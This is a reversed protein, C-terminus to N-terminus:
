NMEYAKKEERHAMYYAHYYEGREGKYEKKTEKAMGTRKLKRKLCIEERHEAYYRKFYALRYERYEEPTMKPEKEGKQPKPKQKYEVPKKGEQVKKEYADRRLAEVGTMVCDPYPCTECNYHHCDM